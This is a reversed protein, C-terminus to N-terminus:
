LVFGLKRSWTLSINWQLHLLIQVTKEELELKPVQLLRHNFADECLVLRIYIGFYNEKMIIQLIDRPFINRISFCIQLEM